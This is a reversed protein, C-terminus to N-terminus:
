NIYFLWDKKKISQEVDVNHEIAICHCCRNLQYQNFTLSLNIPELCPTTVGKRVPLCSVRM